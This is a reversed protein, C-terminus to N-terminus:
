LNLDVWINNGHGKSRLGGLQQCVSACVVHGCLRPLFENSNM